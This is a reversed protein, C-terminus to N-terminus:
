NAGDFRTSVTLGSRRPRKGIVGLKSEFQAPRRCMRYDEVSTPQESIHKLAGVGGRRAHAKL